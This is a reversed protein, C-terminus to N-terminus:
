VDIAEDYVVRKIKGFQIDAVSNEASINQPILARIRHDKAQNDICFKLEINSSALPLLVNLKVDVYGDIKKNRRSELNKPVRFRYSIQAEEFSSGSMTQVEASADNSAIVWDDEVPSYDYSDGGDASDQLLLVNKYTNGTKKDTSNLSGNDNIHIKYFKNEISKDRSTIITNRTENSELIKYVKYGMAPIEDCISIQYKNYNKDSM